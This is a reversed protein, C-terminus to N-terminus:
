LNVFIEATVFNYRYNSTSEVDTMYAIQWNWSKAFRNGIAVKFANTTERFDPTDQYGLEAYGSILFEKFRYRYSVGLSNRRLEDPSFYNPNNKLSSEYYKTSVYLSIGTFPSYYTKLVYGSRTNTDSFDTRKLAAVAGFRDNYVEVGGNYGRYVIQNTIGMESDVIDGDAGVFMTLHDNVSKIVSMDGIMFSKSGVKSVGIDGAISMSRNVYNTVLSIRNASEDITDTYYQTKGYRVGLSDIPMYWSNANFWSNGDSDYMYSAGTGVGDANVYSSLLLLISLIKKM